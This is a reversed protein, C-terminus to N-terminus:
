GQQLVGALAILDGVTQLKGLEAGREAIDVGFEEGL